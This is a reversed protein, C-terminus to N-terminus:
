NAHMELSTACTLHHMEFKTKWNGHHIIEWNELILLLYQLLSSGKGDGTSHGTCRANYHCKEYAIRKRPAPLFSSDIWMERHVESTWLFNLYYRSECIQMLFATCFTAQMKYSSSLFLFACQVQVTHRRDHSKCHWNCSSTLGMHMWSVCCQNACIKQSPAM